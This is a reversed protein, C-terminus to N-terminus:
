DRFHDYGRELSTKQGNRLLYIGEDKKLVEGVVMFDSFEERLGACREPAITFVLEFDEGGYLAYDHPDASVARAADITERSLPIKEREIRAGVGSEECIHAVESALGDSVDIMAGARRAIAAGEWELRCRPERYGDLYGDKEGAM